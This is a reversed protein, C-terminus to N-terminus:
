CLGASDKSVSCWKLRKQQEGTGCACISTTVSPWETLGSYDGQKITLRNAVNVEEAITIGEQWTFYSVQLHLILVYVDQFTSCWEANLVARIYLPTNQLNSYVWKIIVSCWRCALYPVLQQDCSPKSQQSCHSVGGRFVEKSKATFRVSGKM